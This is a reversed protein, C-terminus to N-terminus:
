PNTFVLTVASSPTQWTANTFTVSFTIHKTGKVLSQANGPIPNGTLPLPMSSGSFLNSTNNYTVQFTITGTASGLTNWNNFTANIQAANNGDWKANSSGSITFNGSTTQPGFPTFTITDGASDATAGIVTPNTSSFFWPSFTLTAWAPVPLLLVAALAGSFWGGWGIPPGTRAM